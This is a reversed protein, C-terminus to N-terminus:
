KDDYPSLAVKTQEVSFLNHAFSQITLQTLKKKMNWYAIWM